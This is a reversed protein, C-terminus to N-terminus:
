ILCGHVRRGVRARLVLEGIGHAVLEYFTLFTGPTGTEEAFGPTRFAKDCARAFDATPPKDMSEVGSILSASYGLQYGLEVQTWSAQQRWARLQSAFAQLSTTKVESPTLKVKSM